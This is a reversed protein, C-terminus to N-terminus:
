KRALIMMHSSLNQNQLYEQFSALYLDPKDHFLYHLFGKESFDIEKELYKNRVIDCDLKGPTWVQIDKFGLRTLLIKVSDANFLTLHDPGAINPSKDYLTLLEFGEINPTSLLFFGNTELLDYIKKVFDEPSFLHEILEFNTIFDAKQTLKVNEITDNIIEITRGKELRIPGPEVLVIKKFIKRKDLQQGFIGSGAGVDICLNTSINHKKILSQIMDIRPEYIGSIRAEKSVPFIHTQWFHAAENDTYYKKLIEPTPRPSIYVTRCDLCKRYIYGQKKLFQESQKSLCAPCPVEKFSTSHQLLNRAENEFLKKCEARLAAPRIDNEKM